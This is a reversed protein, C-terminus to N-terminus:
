GIQPDPSLMARLGLVGDGLPRQAMVMVMGAAFAKDDGRRGGQNDYVLNLSAHTMVMWDGATTHIGDHPAIQPQWSTGSADRSMPYAGLASTMSHAMGAHDMSGHDMGAMDHDMPMDHHMGPMDQAAAPLAFALCALVQLPDPIKPM